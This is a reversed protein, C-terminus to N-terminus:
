ARRVASEAIAGKWATAAALAEAGASAPGGARLLAGDVGRNSVREFAHQAVGAEGFLERDLDDRRENVCEIYETAAEPIPETVIRV